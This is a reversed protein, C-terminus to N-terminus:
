LSCPPLSAMTVFLHNVLATLDSIDIEGGIDGSANAEQPCGLPEFTVFLHNVLATLDSIDVADAPDGNVNGTLGVCCGAVTITSNVVVPTYTLAPFSFSTEYITYGSLRVEATQGLTATEPITFFLRCLLGEGPELDPLSGDNSTLLEITKRKNNPDWAVYTQIDFYDARCGVTSFSDLKIDAEGPYEIPIQIDHLPVHHNVYVDVVVEGGPSGVGDSPLLSDALAFIYQGKSISRVRGDTVMECEVSYMGAEDYTHTPSQLSSSDGDGFRWMWSDAPFITSGTFNVDFPVWGSRTDVEMTLGYAENSVVYVTALGAKIMRTMYEMNCYSTSDQPSHYVTSFYYEQIFSAEWGKQIFPYHDSSSSSGVLEGAIGCLSDALAIWLESFGTKSGHYLKARNSNTYQAIMDMNLMFAITDGRAAALDAYYESGFLGFEECDFNAFIITMETEVDALAKAMAMVGVTGSGNDDAGPSGSVADFHSGVIIYHNPFVTGVKTAIVNYCNKNGGWTSAFFYQTFVSDYGFDSYKSVLWDRAQYNSSTGAVRPPYSQLHELWATVSDEEVEAILTELDVDLASINKMLSKATVSSETYDIKLSENRIPRLDYAVDPYSGDTLNVRFLRFGGDRYLLPYRDLSLDDARNDLALEKRDINEALVTHRLGSAYLQIRSEADALVLYGDNLRAIPEVGTKDLASAEQAGAIEVKYLDGAVAGTALLLLGSVMLTILRTM